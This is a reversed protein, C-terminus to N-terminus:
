PAKWEARQLKLECLSESILEGEVGMVLRTIELTPVCDAQVTLVLKKIYKDDRLGLAAALSLNLERHRM